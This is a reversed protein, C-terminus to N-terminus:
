PPCSGNADDAVLWPNRREAAKGGTEKGMEWAIKPICCAPRGCRVFGIHYRDVKTENPNDLVQIQVARKRIQGLRTYTPRPM